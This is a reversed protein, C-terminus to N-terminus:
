SIEGEPFRGGTSVQGPQVVGTPGVICDVIRADSGVNGMVISRDVVAGSGIVAGSLIVSNNVRANEGINARASVVTDGVVASAAVVADAHVAADSPNRLQTAIVCNAQVYTDPRGADIWYDDTAMAYLGGESVLQPFTVREISLKQTGPMLALTSEEMVYTGASAFHSKTEGPQPKEVFRLVRGDADTEVIGFQSPDDVPTLSITAQAGSHRHFAVLDAVNLDTMVDGNAVIFTGTIGAARAAFGIAGATDLPTSEVAYTMRVNGCMNNPFEAFFPEPKFGLALVVDTVGGEALQNVLRRIMPVHAVPLLPKPISYTLPRLRTGFGGVLVVAHM